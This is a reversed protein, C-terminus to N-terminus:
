SRHRIQEMVHAWRVAHDERLKLPRFGISLYLSIAPIRLDDTSLVASHFGNAALCHLAAICTLRGAGRGQFNPDTGIMRFWGEGPFWDKEAATATAIEMEHFALFLVRDPRYGGAERIAKEYSFRTGWIREILDEWIKDDGERECHLSFGEPLVIPPLNTLTDRRMFLQPSEFNM